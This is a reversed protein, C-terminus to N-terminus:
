KSLYIVLPSALYKGVINYVLGDVFSGFYSIPHAILTQESHVMPRVLGTLTGHLLPQIVVDTGAELLASDPSKEFMKNIGFQVIVDSLLYAAVHMGVDVPLVSDRISYGDVFVDKIVVAAGVFLPPIIYNSWNFTDM